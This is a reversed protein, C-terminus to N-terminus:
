LTSNVGRLWKKTFTLSNGYELNGFALAYIMSNGLSNFGLEQEADKYILAQLSGAQMKTIPESRFACMKALEEAQHATIPKIQVYAYGFGLQGQIPVNINYMKRNCDLFVEAQFIVRKQNQIGELILFHHENDKKHALSVVWHNPTLGLLCGDVLRGFIANCSDDVLEMRDRAFLIDESNKQSVFGVASHLQLLKLNNSSLGTVMTIKPGQNSTCTINDLQVGDMCAGTFNVGTLSSGTFLVNRVDAEAFNALDLIAGSLNAGPIRIRSFDCCSFSLGTRNLITIANAAGISVFPEYRSVQILEFLLPELAHDKKVSDVLSDLLDPQDVILQDNLPFGLAFSSLSLIGHFLHKAAFHARLSDHPFIYTRPGVQNLLWGSRLLTTTENDPNFFQFQWDQMFSSGLTSQLDQSEHIKPKELFKTKHTLMGSAIEQHFKYFHEKTLFTGDKRMLSGQNSLRQLQRELWADILADYLNAQALRLGKYDFNLANGEYLGHKRFIEPLALVTMHLMFPNNVLALVSPLKSLAKWYLDGDWELEDKHSKVYDQLYKQIGRETFPCLIMEDLSGKTPTFLPRYDRLNFLAQTRCTIIVKCNWEDLRNTAYLNKFVNREDYGDIIFVFSCREKLLYIEQTGLGCNRFHELLLNREVTGITILPVIVPIPKSKDIGEQHAKWLGKALFNAFTTKGTGAEGMVLLCRRSEDNRFQIFKDFADFRAPTDFDSCGELLTYFTSSEKGDIHMLEYKRLKVLAMYLQKNVELDNSFSPIVESTTTTVKSQVKLDVQSLEKIKTTVKDLAMTKENTTLTELRSQLKQVREKLSEAIIYIHSSDTFSMLAEIVSPIEVPNETFFQNLLEEFSPEYRNGVTIM